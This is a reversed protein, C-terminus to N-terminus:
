PAYWSCSSLSMRANMLDYGSYRIRCSHLQDRIEAYKCTPNSDYM